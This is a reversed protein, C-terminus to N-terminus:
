PDSQPKTETMDVEFAPDGGYRVLKVHQAIKGPDIETAAGLGPCRIIIARLGRWFSAAAKAARFQYVQQLVGTGHLGSSDFYGAEALASEGFGTRGNDDNIAACSMTALDYKRAATELRSGSDQRSNRELKYGHPLAAAPLLSAALQRGTLQVGASSQSSTMAIASGTIAIAACAAMAAAAIRTVGFPM